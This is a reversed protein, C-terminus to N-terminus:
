SIGSLALVLIDRGTKAIRQAIRSATAMDVEFTELNRNNIGIIEAGIELALDLEHDTNVEVLLELGIKKGFQYLASLRSFDLTKVILLALDAGALRAQALQYEYVVFDKLLIAPRNIYTDVIGRAKKLDELNGKFWKPETLVSIVAVGADAYIRAQAEIDADIAIHGKSPSARKFESLIAIGDCLFRRKIREAASVIPFVPHRLADCLLDEISKKSMEAQFTLSRHDVIQALISKTSSDGKFKQSARIYNEFTRKVAGSKLLSKAEAVGQKFDSVIEATKFAAAANILVFDTMPGEKGNLIEIFLEKNFEADGGLVSEVPHSALGFDEPSVVTETIKGDQVFWAWTKGSISIEDMGEFSHFVAGRQIGLEIFCQAFVPGLEKCFVGSVQLRPLAPNILPGLANFVTRIGLQKRIPALPKLAPHFQPAFVFCFGSEKAVQAAESGSLELCAGFSELLDASGCKSTAARNGSKIISVKGTAAVIFSACTSVNFTGLGDGGTGVIDMVSDRDVGEIPQALKRFVRATETLTSADYGRATLLALIASVQPLAVEQKAILSMVATIDSPSVRDRTVLKKILTTADM